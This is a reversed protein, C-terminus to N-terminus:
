KLDLTKGQDNNDNFLRNARKMKEKESKRFRPAKGFHPERDEKRV